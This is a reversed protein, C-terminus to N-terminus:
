DRELMVDGAHIVQTTGDDLALRLAGDTALGMYTGSVKEGTACHVSLRTGPRHAAAEWRALLPGAGYERWRALEDAMSHALDAAFLNRDTPAGIAALALTERGAIRPAAALNVGIGIVAFPGQRELLIGCFKAGSLLVDNPWKLVLSGPRAVRGSAAAYVALAAVFSLSPVPPDGERLRVLTSGMFNGPADLWSRGQRGRGATQRNAILWYGEELAEGKGLRALLDSNTSGTEAIIDLRQSM